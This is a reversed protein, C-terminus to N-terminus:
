RDLRKIRINKFQVEMPGGSHVQLAIIGESDIDPDREAYAVAPVGNLVIAIQNGKATIAYENWGHKRLTAISAATPKALVRNRRSEDYLCGWWQEAIDAQYGALEHSNPVPKSRFQVGSNGIAGVLRFLVRLEFDGYSAKTRLFDNYKLGPSRGVIMGKEVRWIGPTDEIWGDLDLGSFLPVFGDQGFGSAASALVFLFHLKLRM